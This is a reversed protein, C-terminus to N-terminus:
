GPIGVLLIRVKKLLQIEDVATETYHQASKVIKLAVYRDARLLCYLWSIFIVLLPVKYTMGTGKMGASGCRRFTGGGWSESSVIDGIICTVLRWLTTAVQLPPPSLFFALSCHGVVVKIEASDFTILRPIKDNILNVNMHEWTLQWAQHMM